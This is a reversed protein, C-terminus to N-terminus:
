AFGFRWSNHCNKCTITYINFQLNSSGCKCTLSEAKPKPDLGAAAREWYQVSLKDIRSALPHWAKIKKLCSLIEEAESQLGILTLFRLLRTIRKYNHSHPQVWVHSRAAWTDDDIIVVGLLDGSDSVIFRLGLFALFRRTLDLATIQLSVNKKFAEIDDAQLLPAKDFHESREPLPFAHQVVDHSHEWEVDGMDLYTQITRGRHDQGGRYFDLCKGM